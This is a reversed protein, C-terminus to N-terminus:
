KRPRFLSLSVSLFASKMLARTWWASGYEERQKSFNLMCQELQVNRLIRDSQDFRESKEDERYSLTHWTVCTLPGSTPPFTRAERARIGFRRAVSYVRSPHRSFCRRDRIARARIPRSRRGNSLEIEPISLNGACWGRVRPIPREAAATPRRALAAATFSEDATCLSLALTASYNNIPVAFDSNEFDM